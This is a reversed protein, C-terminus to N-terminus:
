RSRILSGGARVYFGIGGVLALTMAGVQYGSIWGGFKPTDRMGEHGLRFLGYAILYLHFHQGPVRGTRRCWWFLLLAGLNFGLELPVAPWRPQGLTDPLAYWAPPCVRGLCCGANMCGVRGLGIGLPAVAAFWDGTAQAYGLTRKAIEVSLFGGLLAGVVTKGAALRYWRDPQSWDWWVESLVYLIKAGTFAGLLAAAYILMLRRDGRALRLWFCASIAIGGLMLWRYYGVRDAEPHSM